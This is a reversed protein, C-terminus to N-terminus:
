NIVISSGLQYRAIREGCSSIGEEVFGLKAYLGKARENNLNYSILVTDTEQEQCIEEIIFQLAQKGYGKGQFKEDIMFRRIWYNGDADDLGYMAFGIMQDENYIAKAVFDPLFQVEAISYVNPAVFERQDEHTQLQISEKWNNRGIKQLTIM